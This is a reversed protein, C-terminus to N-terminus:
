AAELAISTPADIENLAFNGLGSHPRDANYDQKWAALAARAQDERNYSLFIDPATTM